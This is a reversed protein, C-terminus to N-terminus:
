AVGEESVGWVRGHLCNEPPVAGGGSKQGGIVGLSDWQDLRNRDTHGSGCRRNRCEGM